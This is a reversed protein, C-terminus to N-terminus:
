WAYGGGLRLMGTVTDRALPGVDPCAPDNRYHPDKCFDDLNTALKLLLAVSLRMYFGQWFFAGVGVESSWSVHHFSAAGDAADVPKETLGFLQNKLALQPGFALNLFLNRANEIEFDVRYRSAVFHGLRSKGVELDISHDRRFSFGYALGYSAGPEAWDVAIRMQHRPKNERWIAVAQTTRPDVRKRVPLEEKAKVLVPELQDNPLPVTKTGLGGIEPAAIFHQYRHTGAASRAHGRFGVGVDALPREPYIDTFSASLTKGTTGTRGALSLWAQLRAAANAGWVAEDLLYGVLAWSSTRLTRAALPEADPADANFLEELPAMDGVEKDLGLMSPPRGLLLKGEHLKAAGFHTVMGDALWGPLTGFKAYLFRRVLEQNVVEDFSPSSTPTHGLHTIFVERGTSMDVQLAITDGYRRQYDTQSGFLIIEMAVPDAGFWQALSGRIRELSALVEEPKSGVADTHLIFHATTLTKWTIRERESTPRVFRDSVGLSSTQTAPPEDLSARSAVVPAPAAQRNPNALRNSVGACASASLSALALVLAFRRSSL